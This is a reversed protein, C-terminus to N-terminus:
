DGDSEEDGVEDPVDVEFSFADNSFASASLNEVEITARLGALFGERLTSRAESLLIAEIQARVESLGRIREPTREAVLLVYRQVGDALLMSGPDLELPSTPEESVVDLDSPLELPTEVLDLVLIDSVEWPARPLPEFADTAFLTTDILGPLM